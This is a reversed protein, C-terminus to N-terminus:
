VSLKYRMIFDLIVTGHDAYIKIFMIINIHYLM